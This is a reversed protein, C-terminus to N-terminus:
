EGRTCLYQERRSTRSNGLASAAAEVESDFEMREGSALADIVSEPPGVRDALARAGTPSISFASLFVVHDHSDAARSPILCPDSLPTRHVQSMPGQSSRLREPTPRCLFPRETM